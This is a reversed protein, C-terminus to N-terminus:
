RPEKLHQEARELAAFELAYALAEMFPKAQIPKALYHFFGAELGKVVADPTASASLALVPAAQTDPNARVLKMLPLAALGPLDLNILMVEPRERRALKFAHELDTAHVLVLDKRGAILETAAAVAEADSEVYLLRCRRPATKPISRAM